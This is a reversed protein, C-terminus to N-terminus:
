APPELPGAWEGRLERLYYITSDALKRAELFEDLGGHPCSVVQVITPIRVSNVIERYWYLGLKTPKETTWNLDSMATARNTWGMSPRQSRVLRLKRWEGDATQKWRAGSPVCERDARRERVPESCWYWGEKIPAQTTWVM